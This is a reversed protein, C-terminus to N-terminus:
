ADPDPSWPEPKLTQTTRLIQTAMHRSHSAVERSHSTHHWLPVNLLPVAHHQWGDAWLDHGLFRASNPGQRVGGQALGAKHALASVAYCCLCSCREAAQVALSELSAAIAEASGGQAGHLTQPGWAQGSHGFM